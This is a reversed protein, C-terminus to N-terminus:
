TPKWGIQEVGKLYAKGCWPCAVIYEAQKLHEHAPNCEWCSRIGYTGPKMPPPESQKIERVPFKTLAKYIEPYSWALALESPDDYTWFSSCDIETTM